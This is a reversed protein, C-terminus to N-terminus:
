IEARLGLQTFTLSTGSGIDLRNEFKRSIKRFTKLVNM